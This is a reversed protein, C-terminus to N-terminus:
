RPGPDSGAPTAGHHAAISQRLSEGDIFRMTYYPRGDPQHGLAYIPVVGPHELSGTIKAERLFRARSEAHDAYRPQIEKLAVDREMVEDRALFIEGLGGRAHLRTARFRDRGRREEWDGPDVVTAFPDTRCGPDVGAREIRSRLGPDALRPSDPGLIEGARLRALSRAPDGGNLALYDNALRELLPVAEPVIARAELMTTAFSGSPALSWANWAAILADRRALELRLALVGLLLALEAPDSRSM